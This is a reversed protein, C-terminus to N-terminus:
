KVKVKCKLTIGNTKVTITATSGKKAKKNVTIKGKSNVTVIKKNSTYFKATGIKGTIKLTYSKGRSISVSTKNLKPNLVKVTFVKSVKNNTVTIKATGSKLATVKGRSDVKAIKTNNSKYTTKGKGNKVTSKITTTGKVYVNTSYKALTVTTKKVVPKTTPVTTTPLTEGFHINGRSLNDKSRSDTPEYAFSIAEWDEKNGSYYVDTIRECCLFAYCEVNKLSKPISLIKLNECGSFAAGGISELGDPMIVKKITKCGFFASGGISKVTDPIIFTSSEKGMAYTLLVTKDKNYLNGDLSSFVPNNENVVINKLSECTIAGLGDGGVGEIGIYTLSEPIYITTLKDCDLFWQDDSIKTVTNPITLSTINGNALWGIDTVTIGNLERPIIVDTENGSYGIIKATGDDLLEYEFNELNEASATVPAFAFVSVLMLLALVISLPKTIHKM